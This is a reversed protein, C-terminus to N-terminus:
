RTAAWVFLTSASLSLVGRVAHLRGWTRLLQLTEDSGPERLPDLLRSNTRGIALLTFPIVALILAAGWLWMPGGGQAGRLIGCAGAIIALPVQMITARRYSPRWEAIATEAGCSMRAPHEVATIYIAAGTFFTCALIAAAEMLQLTM